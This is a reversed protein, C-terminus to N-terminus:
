EHKYKGYDREIEKLQFELTQILERVSQSPNPMLRLETLFHETARAMGTLLSKREIATISIENRNYDFKHPATMTAWIM